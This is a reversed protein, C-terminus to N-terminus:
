GGRGSAPNEPGRAPLKLVQVPDGVVCPRFVERLISTSRISKRERQCQRWGSAFGRERSLVEQDTREGTLAEGV